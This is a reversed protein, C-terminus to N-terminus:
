KILLMSKTVSMADTDLRYHYIGAALSTGDFSVRYTGPAQRAEHLLAVPRGLVYFVALRAHQEELIAFEITKPGFPNPYNQNLAIASPLENSVEEIGVIRGHLDGSYGFADLATWDRAWNTMGFAGIFEARTFFDDDAPLATRASRMAPSRLHPRPDLQGTGTLGREIGRLMPDKLQNRVEVLADTIEATYDPDDQHNIVDALESGAGFSWWINSKLQLDGTQFRKRSDEAQAGSNVVDEIKLAFGGESTEFDTFISNTYYGGSKDRFILMEARDSTPTNGVGPGVYTANFVTPIAYPEYHEDGSAGDMEAAAGAKDTGQLVFWFQGKGRWGQDWDIADDANFASVFYKLNVTGGFVEVGDDGSAYSEIYELTTSSGVAGLTLGQIENGDSEGINMGTHRISVYRMLGSDDSDDSGGHEARTDAGTVIENIGAIEKWEGSADGPNDTTANGLIVVGGWLGRPSYDLLDDSSINDHVSTFIIPKSPMGQAFIKGGRAIILSSAEVSQGDEAKVVTGAEIHLEAGDEVFVSGSLQYVNEATWFVVDGEGIDADTVVIVPREEVDDAQALASTPAVFLPLSHLLASRYRQM